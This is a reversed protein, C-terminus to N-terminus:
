SFTLVGSLPSGNTLGVAASCLPDDCWTSNGESVPGKGLQEMIAEFAMDVILEQMELKGSAQVRSPEETQCEDPFLYQWM